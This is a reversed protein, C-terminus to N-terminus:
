TTSRILDGEFTVRPAGTLGTVLLAAGLLWFLHRHASRWRLGRRCADALPVVLVARGAPKTVFLPLVTASFLAAGSLGIAGMIGVSWQGPLPVLLLCLLGAVTTAAGMALPFWMDRAAQWATAEESTPHEIRYLVHVGYDVSIGVLLVACGVTVAPIVPAAVAFGIVVCCLGFLCPVFALLAHRRRRFVVVTLLFIAVSAYTAAQRLDGEIVRANELAARHYGFYAIDVSGAPVSALASARASEIARVATEGSAADMAQGKPTLVLLIHNGDPSWIRGDIPADADGGQMKRLLLESLGLPDMQVHRRVLPGAPELLSRKAVNLRRRIADDTFREAVAAYDTEDLLMPRHTSLAAHLAEASQPRTRYHIQRFADTARLADAFTDAAIKAQARNELSAGVDVYIADIMAFRSVLLRYEDFTPDGSPLLQLIDEDLTLRTAAYGACAFVAVLVALAVVRRM